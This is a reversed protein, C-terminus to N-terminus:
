TRVSFPEKRFMFHIIEQPNAKGNITERRTLGCTFCDIKAYAGYAKRYLNQMAVLSEDKEARDSPQLADGRKTASGDLKALTNESPNNSSDASDAKVLKLNPDGKETSPRPPQKMEQLSPPPPILLAVDFTDQVQTSPIPKDPVTLPNPM